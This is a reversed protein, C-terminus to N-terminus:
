CKPVKTSVIYKVHVQSTYYVVWLPNYKNRYIGAKGVKTHVISPLSKTKKDKSNHMPSFFSSSQITWRTNPNESTSQNWRSPLVLQQPKQPGSPNTKLGPFPPRLLYDSVHRTIGLHISCLKGERYDRAQLEM